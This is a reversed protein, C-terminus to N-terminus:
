FRVSGLRWLDRRDYILKALIQFSRVTKCFLYFYILVIFNEESREVPSYIRTHVESEVLMEDTVLRFSVLLQTKFIIKYYRFHCNFPV